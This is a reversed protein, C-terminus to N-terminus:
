FGVDDPATKCGSLPTTPVPRSDLYDRWPLESKFTQRLSDVRSLISTAPPPVSAPTESIRKEYFVLTDQNNNANAHIIVAKKVSM